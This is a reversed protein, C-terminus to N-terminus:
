LDLRASKGCGTGGNSPESRTNNIRQRHPLGPWVFLERLWQAYREWTLPKRGGRRNLWKYWERRVAYDFRGVGRSNGSIGYYAHHGQVKRKLTRWQEHVPQHRNKRMWERVKRLTRTLRNGATSQKVAFGGKRARGWHHTFGLFDFSRAAGGPGSAPPTQDEHDNDKGQASRPDPPGFAVLRTKDPHLALGYRAFRKPLVEHVRRADEGCEFGIVFDDAYRVLFARGKMRPQVEREFWEDLVEHLYINSLLPCGSRLPSLWGRRWLVHQCIVGGQPTGEDRYSLMGEEMVGAKLWKDILRGVVGDRV